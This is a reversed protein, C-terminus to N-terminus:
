EEGWFDEESIYNEEKMERDAQELRLKEDLTLKTFDPDWQNINIIKIASEDCMIFIRELFSVNKLAHVLM